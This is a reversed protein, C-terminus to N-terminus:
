HLFPKGYLTYEIKGMFHGLLGQWGMLCNSLLQAPIQGPNAGAVQGLLAWLKPIPNPLTFLCFVFGFGFYILKYFLGM